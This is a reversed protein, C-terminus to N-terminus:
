RASTQMAGDPIGKEDGDLPSLSSRNWPRIDPAAFFRRLAEAVAEPAAEAM